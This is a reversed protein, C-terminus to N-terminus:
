AAMWVNRDDQHWQSEKKATSLSFARVSRSNGPQSDSWSLKSASESADFMDAALGIARGPVRGIDGLCSM